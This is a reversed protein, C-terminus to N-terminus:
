GERGGSVQSLIRYSVSEYKGVDQIWPGAYAAAFLVCVFLLPRRIILAMDVAKLSLFFDFSSPGLSFPKTIYGESRM